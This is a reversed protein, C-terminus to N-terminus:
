THACPVKIVKEDWRRSIGVMASGQLLLANKQDPVRDITMKIDTTASKVFGSRCFAICDRIGSTVSLRNSKIVTFGMLKAVKNGMHWQKVWDGVVQGWFSQSFTSSFYVLDEIEVPSLAICAEEKDMDIDATDFLQRARELKWPTMGQNSGATPAQPTGYNVPVIQSTPFPTATNYPDVGGLSDEFAAQISLDDYIRNFGSKMATMEESTPLAINDLLEKDWEYFWIAEAEVKKKYTKRFSFQSERGLTAGGRADNRVWNNKSLDRFVYEKGTWRAQADQMGMFRSEEQQIVQEFTLSLQRPYAEPINYFGPDAM